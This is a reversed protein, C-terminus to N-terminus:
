MKLPKLAPKYNEKNLIYDIIFEITEHNDKLLNIYALRPKESDYFEISQDIINVLVKFLYKKKLQMNNIKDAEAKLKSVIFIYDNINQNINKITTTNFSTTTNKIEIM